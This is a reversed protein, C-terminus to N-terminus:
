STVIPPLDSPFSLFIFLLMIVSLVFVVASAIGWKRQTSRFHEVSDWRRNRWAWENGKAGLVFAMIFGVFPVLTLLAIWVSNGIGWIWSLLFAGWNWGRIEQPITASSGQGSTNEGALVGTETKSPRTKSTFQSDACPNCYIKGALETKCEICVLKGCSVCAGVADRDPHYACNTM